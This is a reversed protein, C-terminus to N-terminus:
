SMFLIRGCTGCQVPDRGARARQLHHTPLAMGCGRCKGGEVKAVPRGQKSVRLREYLRIGQGSVQAALADRRGELASLDERRDGLERGLDEQETQWREESEVSRVQLEGMDRQAEDLAVMSELVRDDLAQLQERLFSAEKQLGEMEKVSKISGSYLRTEVEDVKARLAEAELSESRHRVTLREISAKLEEQRRAMREIESRDGLLREIARIRDRCEAAELDLEQLDYLNRLTTM